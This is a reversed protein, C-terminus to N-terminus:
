GGAQRRRLLLSYAQEAARVRADWTHMREARLRAAVSMRSLRERDAHLKLIAGALGQVITEESEPAILIACSEDAIEEPGGHRVAVVPLGCALAEYLVNGGAERLSPFVFVDAERYFRLVEERRFAGVFKVREGCGWEGAARELAGREPGDGVITLTCPSKTCAIARLLLHVGKLRVLRGVFLLRLEAGHQRRRVPHWRNTDIASELVPSCRRRIRAPLMEMCARNGTLYRVQSSSRLVCQALLRRVTGAIKEGFSEYDRRIGAPWSMGSNTPGLVFAVDRPVALSPWWLCKPSVRHVLDFSRSRMRRLLHWLALDFAMYDMAGLYRHESVHTSGFLTRNLKWVWRSLWETQVYVVPARLQGAADIAARNREHTVVTIDHAAQLSVAWDYAVRPESPNDPSCHYALLLIRLRTNM